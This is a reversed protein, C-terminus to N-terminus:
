KKKIRHTFRSLTKSSQKEYQSCKDKYMDLEGEVEKLVRRYHDNETRANALELKVAMLEALLMPSDKQPSSKKPSTEEASMGEVNENGGAQKGSTFAKMLDTEKETTACPEKHKSEKQREKELTFDKMPDKEKELTACSEKHKLKEEKSYKTSKCSIPDSNPDGETSLTAEEEVSLFPGLTQINLTESQNNQSPWDKTGKEEVCSAVNKERIVETAQQGLKTMNSTAAKTIPISEEAGSKFKTSHHQLKSSFESIRRGMRGIGRDFIEDGSAEEKDYSTEKQQTLKKDLNRKVVAENLFNNLKKGLTEDKEFSTEQQQPSKKDLSKGMVAMKTSNVKEKTESQNTAEDIVGEKDFSGEKQEENIAKEKVFVEKAQGRKAIAENLNHLARSWAKREGKRISGAISTNSIAETMRQESLIVDSANKRLPQDTSVFSEVSSPTVETKAKESADTKTSQPPAPLERVTVIEDQMAYFTSRDFPMQNIVRSFKPDPPWDYFRHYQLPTYPIRVHQIGIKQNPEANAKNARPCFYFLPQPPWGCSSRQRHKTEEEDEEAKSPKLLERFAGLFQGISLMRERFLRMMWNQPGLAVM